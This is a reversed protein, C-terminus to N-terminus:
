ATKINVIADDLIVGYGFISYWALDRERGFDVVGNDRMEVPLAVAKGFAGDGIMM